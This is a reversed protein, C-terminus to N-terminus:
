SKSRPNLLNFRTLKSQKKQIAKKLQNKKIIDKLILNTQFNLEM